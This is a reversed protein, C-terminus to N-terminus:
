GRIGSVEAGKTSGALARAKEEFVAVWTIEDDEGIGVSLRAWDKGSAARRV